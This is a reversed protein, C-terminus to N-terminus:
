PRDSQNTLLKLRKAWYNPKRRLHMVAVVVIKEKELRYIIGFPFRRLLRRRTNDRLCKGSAPLEQIRKTTYEVEDLFDFGLGKTQLEYYEAAEAMEDKAPDLFLIPKM